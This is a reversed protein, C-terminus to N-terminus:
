PSLYNLLLKAAGHGDPEGSKIIYTSGTSIRIVSDGQANEANFGAPFEALRIGCVPMTSVVGMGGALDVDQYQEDFVGTFSFSAGVVPLYTMAEGFVAVVPALVRQDWDIM